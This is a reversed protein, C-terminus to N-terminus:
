ARIRSPAAMHGGNLRNSTSPLEAKHREILAQCFVQDQDTFNRKSKELIDLRASGGIKNMSPVEDYARHEIPHTQIHDKVAQQVAAHLETIREPAYAYVVLALRKIIGTVCRDSNIVDNLRKTNNSNLGPVPYNFFMTRETNSFTALIDTLTSSADNFKEQELVDYMASLGSEFFANKCFDVLADVCRKTLNSKYLKDAGHQIAYWNNILENVTPSTSSLIKKIDKNTLLEGTYPNILKEEQQYIQSIWKIDVVYNSELWIANSSEIDDISSTDYDYGWIEDYQQPYHADELRESPFQQPMLWHFLYQNTGDLRSEQIIYKAFSIFLKDAASLTATSYYNPNNTLKKVLQRKIFTSLTNLQAPTLRDNDRSTNLSEWITLLQELEKIRPSSRLNKFWADRSFARLKALQETDFKPQLEAALMPADSNKYVTILHRLFRISLVNINNLEVTKLLYFAVNDAGEQRKPDLYHKDVIHRIRDVMPKPLSTDLSENIVSLRSIITNLNTILPPLSEKDSYLSIWSAIAGRITRLTLHHHDNVEIAEFNEPIVVPEKRVNVGAPSAKKKLGPLYPLPQLVNIDAKSIMRTHELHETHIPLDIKLLYQDIMRATDFDLIFYPIPYSKKDKPNVYSTIGTLSILAQRLAHNDAVQSSSLNKRMAEKTSFVVQQKFQKIQQSIEAITHQPSESNLLASHIHLLSLNDPAAVNSNDNFLDELIPRTILQQLYLLEQGLQQKDLLLKNAKFILTDAHQMITKGLLSTELVPPSCASLLAQIADTNFLYTDDLLRHKFLEAVVMNYYVSFREELIRDIVIPLNQQFVKIIHENAKPLGLWISPLDAQLGYLEILQIICPHINLHQGNMNPYLQKVTIQKLEFLIEDPYSSLTNIVDPLQVFRQGVVNIDTLIKREIHWHFAANIHQMLSDLFPRSLNTTEIKILRLWNLINAHSCSVFQQTKVDYHERIFNENIIQTSLNFSAIIKECIINFYNTVREQLLLHLQQICTPLQRANDLFTAADHCPNNGDNLIVNICQQSFTANDNYFAFYISFNHALHQYVERKAQQTKLETLIEKTQEVWRSMAARQAHEDLRHFFYSFSRNDHMMQYICDEATALYAVNAHALHELWSHIQNDLATVFHPRLNTTIVRNILEELSQNTSSMVANLPNIEFDGKKCHDRLLVAFSTLMELSPLRFSRIFEETIATLLDGGSFVPIEFLLASIVNLNEDNLDQNNQIRVNNAFNYKEHFPSNETLMSKLDFSKYGLKSAFYEIWSQEKALNEEFTFYDIHKVVTLVNNWHERSQYCQDVFERTYFYAKKYPDYHRYRVGNRFLAAENFILKGDQIAILPNPSTATVLANEIVDVTNAGCDRERYQLTVNAESFECKKGAFLYEFCKQLQRTANQKATYEDEAIFPDDASPDVTLIQIPSDLNEQSLFCPIYHNNSFHVGFCLVVPKDKYGNDKAFVQLLTSLQSQFKKFLITEENDPKKEKDGVNKADEKPPSLLHATCAPILLMRYPMNAEIDVLEALPASPLGPEELDDHPESYAPAKIEAKLIEDQENTSLPNNLLRYPYKLRLVREAAAMDSVDFQYNHEPPLPRDSIYHVGSYVSGEPIFLPLGLEYRFKNHEDLNVSNMDFSILRELDAFQIYRHGNLTFPRYQEPGYHQVVITAFTDPNNLQFFFALENADLNYYITPNMFLAFVDDYKSQLSSIKLKEFIAQKKKLAPALLQYLNSLVNSFLQGPLSFFIKFTSIDGEHKRALQYINKIKTLLSGFNIPPRNLTQLLTNVEPIVFKKYSNNDNSEYQQLTPSWTLKMERAFQHLARRLKNAISASSNDHFDRTDANNSADVIHFHDRMFNANKRAIFLNIAPRQYATLQTAQNYLDSTSFLNSDLIYTPLSSTQMAPHLLIECLMGLCDHPYFNVIHTILAPYIDANNAFQMLIFHWHAICLKNGSLFLLAIFDADTPLPDQEIITKSDVLPIGMESNTSVTQRAELRRTFFYNILTFLLRSSMANFIHQIQAPERQTFVLKALDNLDFLDENDFLNPVSIKLLANLFTENQLHPKFEAITQPTSQEPFLDHFCRQLIQPLPFYQEIIAQYENTKNPDQKALDALTEPVLTEEGFFNLLNIGTESFWAPPLKFINTAHKAALSPTLNLLNPYNAISHVIQLYDNVLSLNFNCNEFRPNAQISVIQHGEFLPCPQNAAINQPYYFLSPTTDCLLHLNTGDNDAITAIDKFLLPTGAFTLLAGKDNLLQPPMGVNENKKITIDIYPSAQIPDDNNLFSVALYSKPPYFRPFALTRAVQARANFGNTLAQHQRKLNDDNPYQSIKSQLSAIETALETAQQQHWKLLNDREKFFPALTLTLLNIVQTPTICTNGIKSLTNYINSKSLDDGCLQCLYLQLTSLTKKEEPTALSNETLFQEIFPIAPM